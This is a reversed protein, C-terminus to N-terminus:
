PPYGVFEPGGYYPIPVLAVAVWLATEGQVEESHVRVPGNVTAAFVVLRALQSTGQIAYLWYPESAVRTQTRTVVAKHQTFFEGFRTKYDGTVPTTFYLNPSDYVGRSIKLGNFTGAVKGKLGDLVAPDAPQFATQFLGAPTPQASGLLYLTYDGSVFPPLDIRPEPQAKATARKM